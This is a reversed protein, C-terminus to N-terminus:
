FRPSELNLEVELKIWEKVDFVGSQEYLVVAVLGGSDDAEKDKKEGYREVFCRNASRVDRARWMDSEPM